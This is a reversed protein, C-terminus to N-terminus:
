GVPRLVTPVSRRPEPEVGSPLAVVDAVRWGAETTWASAAEEAGRGGRRVWSVFRESMTAEVLAQILM